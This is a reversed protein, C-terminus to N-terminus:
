TPRDVWDKALIGMMIDDHWAGDVMASERERGEIVFGCKQYCRIARENYALVRLGIRHLALSGFSHALLLGIAESGYGKGLAAPELIGIALTARRDGAEFKDLRIEGILRQGVAMAWAFPHTRMFSLWAEAMQRTYPALDSRSGGFMRHIQPDLGLALRMEIDADVPPRLVVRAGTLVPATM